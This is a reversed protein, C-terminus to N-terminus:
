VEYVHMEWFAVDGKALYKVFILDFYSLLEQFADFHYYIIM